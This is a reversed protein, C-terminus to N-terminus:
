ANASPLPPPSPPPTASPANSSPDVARGLQNTMQSIVDLLDRTNATDRIIGMYRYQNGQDSRWYRYLLRRTQGHTVITIKAHVPFNFFISDDDELKQVIDRGVSKAFLEPKVKNESKYSILTLKKSFALKKLMVKLEQDTDIFSFDGSIIEVKDAGNIFKRMLKLDEDGEIPRFAAEPVIKKKLFEIFNQLLFAAAFLYASFDKLEAARADSVLKLGNHFFHSYVAGCIGLWLAISVAAIVIRVAASGLPVIVRKIKRDAPDILRRKVYALSYIHLKKEVSEYIQSIRKIKNDVDFECELQGAIAFVKSKIPDYFYSLFKVKAINNNVYLDQFKVEIDLQRIYNKCWFNKIEKKGNYSLKNNIILSVDDSVLDSMLSVDHSAWGSRYKEIVQKYEEFTSMGGGVCM